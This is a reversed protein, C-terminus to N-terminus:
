AHPRVTNVAPIDWIEQIRGEFVRWVVVADVDVESGYQASARHTWSMTGFACAIAVAAAAVRRMM